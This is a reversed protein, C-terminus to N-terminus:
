ERAKLQIIFGITDQAPLPTLSLIRGRQKAELLFHGIPQFLSEEGPRPPSLLVAMRQAQPRPAEIAEVLARRARAEDMERLDLAGDVQGVQAALSLLYDEFADM